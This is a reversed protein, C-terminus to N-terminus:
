REDYSKRGKTDIWLCLLMLHLQMRWFHQSTILSFFLFSTLHSNGGEEEKNILSNFNVQSPTLLPSCSLVVVVRPVLPLSKAAALCMKRAGDTM